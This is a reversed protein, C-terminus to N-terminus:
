GHHAGGKCEVALVGALELLENLSLESVAGEITVTAGADHAAVIFGFGATRGTMSLAEHVTEALIRRPYPSLKRAAILARRVSLSVVKV